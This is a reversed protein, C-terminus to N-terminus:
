RRNRKKRKKYKKLLKGGYKLEAESKDALDQLVDDVNMMPEEAGSDLESPQLSEMKEMGLEQRKRIAEAERKGAREARRELSKISAKKIADGGLEILKQRSESSMRPIYHRGEMLDEEEEGTGAQNLLMNIYAQAQSVDLPGGQQFKKPKKGAKKMAIAIAAQTALKKKSRKM